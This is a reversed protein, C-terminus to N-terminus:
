LEDTTIAKQRYERYDKPQHTGQYISNIVGPNLGREIMIIMFLSGEMQIGVAGALQEFKLFHDAATDKGQCLHDM